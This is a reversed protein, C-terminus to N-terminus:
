RTLAEQGEYPIEVHQGNALSELVVREPVISIVKYGGGELTDGAQYEFGDVIALRGSGLEVYGSYRPMVTPKVAVSRGELPKDYFAALRWAKEISELLATEAKGPAADQITQLLANPRLAEPVAQAPPPTQPRAGPGGGSLVVGLGIVAVVGTVALIIKERRTM